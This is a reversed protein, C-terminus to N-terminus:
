RWLGYDNWKTEPIAEGISYSFAIVKMHDETAECTFSFRRWKHGSRFAAGDAKLINGLHNPPTVVDSKARDPHFEASEKGIREMAALDCLQELRMSPDLLLLGKVTRADFALASTCFAHATAVTAAFAIKLRM